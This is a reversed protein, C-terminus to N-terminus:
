DAEIISPLCKQNSLIHKPIYLTTYTNENRFVNVSDKSKGRMRIKFPFFGKVEKCLQVVEYTAIATLTSYKTSNLPGFFSPGLEKTEYSDLAQFM